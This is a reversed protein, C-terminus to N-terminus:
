EEEKKDVHGNFQSTKIVVSGSRSTSVTSSMCSSKGIADSISKVVSIILGGIAILLATISVPEVM